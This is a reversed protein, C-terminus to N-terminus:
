SVCRHIVEVILHSMHFRIHPHVHLKLQTSSITQCRAEVVALAASENERIISSHRISLFWNEIM